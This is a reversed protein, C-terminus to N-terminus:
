FPLRFHSVFRVLIIRFDLFKKDLVTGLHENPKDNQEHNDRTDDLEPVAALSGGDFLGFEQALAVREEVCVLLIGGEGFELGTDLGAVHLAEGKRLGGQKSAVDLVFLRIKVTSDRQVLLGDIVSAINGEHTRGGDM